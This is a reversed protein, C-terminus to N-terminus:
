NKLTFYKAVGRCVCASKLLMGSLLLISVSLSSYFLHEPSFSAPTRTRNPFLVLVALALTLYRLCFRLSVEDLALETEKMSYSSSKYHRTLLTSIFILHLLHKSKSSVFTICIHFRMKASSINIIDIIVCSIYRSKEVFLLKSLIWCRLGIM